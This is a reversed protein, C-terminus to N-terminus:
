KGRVEPEAVPALGSFFRLLEALRADRGSGHLQVSHVRDKEAFAFGCVLGDKVPERHDGMNWIDRAQLEDLVRASEQATLQRAIRVPERRHPTRIREVHGAAHHLRLAIRDSGGHPLYRAEVLIILTSLEESRCLSVAERALARHSAPWPEFARAFFRRVAEFM